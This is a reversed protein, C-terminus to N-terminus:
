DCRISRGQQITSGNTRFLGVENAAAEFKDLEERVTWITKQDFVNDLVTFGITDLDAAQVETLVRLPADKRTPLLSPHANQKLLHMAPHQPLMANHKSAVSQEEGTAWRAQGDFDIRQWLVHPWGAFSRAVYHSAFVQRFASLEKGMVGRHWLYGVM